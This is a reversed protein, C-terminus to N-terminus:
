SHPSLLGCIAMSPAIPSVDPDECLRRLAQRALQAGRTVEPAALKLLAVLGARETVAEFVADSDAVALHWFARATHEQVRWWTLNLPHVSTSLERYIASVHMCGQAKCSDYLVQLLGHSLKHGANTCTGCPETPVAQM